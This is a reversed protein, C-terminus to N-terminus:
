EARGGGKLLQLWEVVTSYIRAHFRKNDEHVKKQGDNSEEAHRELRVRVGVTEHRIDELRRHTQRHWHRALWGLTILSFIIAAFGALAQKEIFNM